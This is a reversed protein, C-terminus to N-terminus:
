KKKIGVARILTQVSSPDNSILYASENLAEDNLLDAIATLTVNASEGPQLEHKECSIRVVASECYVSRVLLPSKGSNTLTLVCQKTDGAALIGFDASPPDLVAIPAERLQEASAETFDDVVVARVELTASGSASPATSRVTLSDVTLGWENTRDSEYYVPMTVLEGPALKKPIASIDIHPPVNEFSIELSDNGANMGTYYSMKNAGKTVRNMPLMARSIRLNGAAVPYKQAVQEDTGIVNGELYLTTRDPSASTYVYVAKRFRGISYRSSYTMSVRGTDGPAIEHRSYDAATCGCTPRVQTILVPETGTNVFWLEGTVKEKASPFSGFNLVLSNWEIAARAAVSLVICLTCSILIKRMPM